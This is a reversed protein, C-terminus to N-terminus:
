RAMPAPLEIWAVAGGGERPGIGLSGGMGQAWRRCTALSLGNGPIDDYSHLREFPAVVADAREAPVGVGRDAVELRSGESGQVARVEIRPPASGAYRVCNDLLRQFIKRLRTADARVDPLQGVVEVSAGALSAADGQGMQACAADFEAHADVSELRPPLEADVYDVCARVLRSMRQMAQEAQGFLETDAAGDASSRAVSILMMVGSLPTLLEHRARHAFHSCARTRAEATSNPEM